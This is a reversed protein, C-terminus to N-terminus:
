AGRDGVKAAEALAADIMTSMEEPASGLELHALFEVNGAPGRLPSATLDRTVLRHGAAGNLTETLVRRHVRPDRVVGGKGVETRGAEFQPKILPICRGGGELLRAIVPFILNLSIFSVDVVILAVPEPLAELYRANTREMVVVRPNSRLRAAIQGYGVDVAYVRHAGRQLLCDTFGGTSAGLDATIVGDVHVAFRDLAHALKEGGRSVFRPRERLAVVDSTAVADGAHQARQGNVLVDGALILARARSRTDALCREVVAVDLRQRKAM